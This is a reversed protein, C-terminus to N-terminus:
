RTSSCSNHFRVVLPGTDLDARAVTADRQGARHGRLLHPLLCDGHRAIGLAHTSDLVLDLDRRIGRGTPGLGSLGLPESL